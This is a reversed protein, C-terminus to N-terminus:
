GAALGHQQDEELRSDWSGWHSKQLPSDWANDELDLCQLVKAWKGKGKYFKKLNEHDMGWDLDRQIDTRGETKDAANVQLTM